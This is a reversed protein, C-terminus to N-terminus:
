PYHECALGDQDRDLKPQYAPDGEPIDYRGSEHAETCNEFPGSTPTSPTAGGVEQVDAAVIEGGRVTYTGTFVKVSGDTQRASLDLSVTDGTVDGVVVTDQATDSFGSVFADYSGGLNKGGLDWARRYDHANIADFYAQVVAAPDAERSSPSAPPPRSSRPSEPTATGPSAPATTTVTAPASPSSGAGSGGCGTLLTGSAVVAAAALVPLKRSM